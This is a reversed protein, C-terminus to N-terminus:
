LESAKVLEDIFNELAKLRNDATQHCSERATVYDHYLDLQTKIEKAETILPAPEPAIPEQPEPLPDSMQKNVPM